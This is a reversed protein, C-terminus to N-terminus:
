RDLCYEACQRLSWNKHKNVIVLFAEHNIGPYERETWQKPTLGLHDMIDILRQDKVKARAKGMAGEPTLNYRKNGRHHEVLEEINDTLYITIRDQCVSM